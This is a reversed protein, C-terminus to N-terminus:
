TNKLTTPWFAHEKDLFIIYFVDDEIYGAVVEKSKDTIHMVAWTVNQVHKPESFKSNEPFDVKHYEKVYKNQKAEYITLQGVYKMRLMLTELLGQESWQEITEGEGQIQKSLSFTICRQKKVKANRNGQERLYAPDKRDSKKRTPM